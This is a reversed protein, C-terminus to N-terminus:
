RTAPPKLVDLHWMVKTESQSEVLNQFMANAADRRLLTVDILDDFTKSGKEVEQIFLLHVGIPSRLPQSVSGIPLRRLERVLGAPLDGESEIWGLEGGAEATASQSHARAAETFSGARDESTQIESAIASLSKITEEIHGPSTSIPRMFIQSVRYRTGDYASANSEFFRRLNSDTLKSKLYAGWAVRWTLDVILSATDSSRAAAQQQLTSGRRKVEAAFADVEAQVMRVLSEGGVKRLARLALRRQALVPCTARKLDADISDIPQGQFREALILNLEGVFVPEGDVTAIIESPSLEEAFVQSWYETGSAGFLIISLFAVTLSVCQNRIM